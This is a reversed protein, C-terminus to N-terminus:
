NLGMPPDGGLASKSVQNQIPNSALKHKQFWTEPNTTDVAPATRTSLVGATAKDTPQTQSAAHVVQNTRRKVPPQACGVAWCLGLAWEADEQRDAISCRRAAEQRQWAQHGQGIRQMQAGNAERKRKKRGRLRVAERGGTAAVWAGM